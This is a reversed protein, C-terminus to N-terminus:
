INVTIVLIDKDNLCCYFKKLSKLTSLCIDSFSMTISVNTELFDDFLVTCFINEFLFKVFSNLSLSSLVSDIM